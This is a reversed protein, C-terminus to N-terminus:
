RQRVMGCVLDPSCSHSHVGGPNRDFAGHYTDNHETHHLPSQQGSIVFVNSPHAMARSRIAFSAASREPNRSKPRSPNLSNGGARNLRVCKCSSFRPSPSFLLPLHCCALAFIFSLSIEVARVPRLASASKRTSDIDVVFTTLRPAGSEAGKIKPSIDANVIPGWREFDSKILRAFDAGSATAVEYSIQTIATKIEEKKLAKRIANNLNSVTEAPTKAPLFVGM